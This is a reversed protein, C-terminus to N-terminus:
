YGRLLPAKQNQDSFKMLALYFLKFYAYIPTHKVTKERVLAMM